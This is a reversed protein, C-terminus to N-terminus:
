STWFSSTQPEVTLWTSQLPHTLIGLRDTSEQTPQVFGEWFPHSPDRKGAQPKALCSSELGTVQGEKGQIQTGEGQGPPKSSLTQLERSIGQPRTKNGNWGKARQPYSSPLPLYPLANAGQDKPKTLASISPPTPTSTAPITRM